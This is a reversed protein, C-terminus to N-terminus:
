WDDSRFPAAPLGDANFLNVMPANRWAYRVAIPKTVKASTVIIADGEIRADAPYFTKDEGALQFEAIPGEVQKFNAPSQFTVRATPGDFTVSKFTPGADVVDKGYSRKLAIRALRDGVAQKNTPHINTPNGVDIAVAQGTNPLALAHAQGDRVIAADPKDAGNYVFNPLQVWYFPVDGQVLARRWGVIMADFLPAYDTLPTVNSEGQYWLIGRIAYQRTPHIMGNYIASPEDFHPAGGPEAPARPHGRTFAPGGAKAAATKEDWEAVAADYKAKLAPYDALTHQWADFVYAIAPTARYSEPPIWAEIRTGGWDADVLAIPVDVDRRVGRAFFYGVATFGGATGPSCANWYGGVEDAPAHAATTKVRYERILPDTAAAIEDAARDAQKLRFEMNSQGSCLWVDGVLVDDLTVTKGGGSITMARPSASAPLPGLTVRWRGDADAVASATENAFAVDVREAPGATGWVNLPRDRQLIAHSAFIAAPMPAASAGGASALISLWFVSLRRVNSASM